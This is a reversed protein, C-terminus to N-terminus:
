AVKLEVKEFLQNELLPHPDVVLPVYINEGSNQYLTLAEYYSKVKKNIHIKTIDFSSLFLGELSKVRSLAVYTQGCEFIGSGVDIEAADM